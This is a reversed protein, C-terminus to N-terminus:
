TCGPCPPWSILVTTAASMTQRNPSAVMADEARKYVDLAPSRISDLQGAEKWMLAWMAARPRDDNHLGEDTLFEGVLDQHRPM